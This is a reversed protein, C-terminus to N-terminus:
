MFKCQIVGKFFRVSQVIFLASVRVFYRHLAIRQQWQRGSPVDRMHHVGQLNLAASQAVKVECTLRTTDSRLNCLRFM